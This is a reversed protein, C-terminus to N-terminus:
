NGRAGGFLRRYFAEHKVVPQGFLHRVWDAVQEKDAACIEGEVWVTLSEFDVTVWGHPLRRCVVRLQPLIPPNLEKPLPDGATTDDNDDDTIATM